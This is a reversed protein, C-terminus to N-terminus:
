TNISQDRKQDIYLSGDQQIEAYFVDSVSAVNAQQLQQVLWSEDRNIMELNKTHVTGDSIVETALPFPKPKSFLNMDEKTVMQKEANKIVSLKGNTEFIAYDVDSLQFVNKERLLARLTDIDLRAKKLIDEMLKGEKIVVMPDGIILQRTKKIKIDLFEVILTLLTWGILAILGLTISLNKNVAINAALSGIAVGSVWNFFTMQSIEKRGTIRTLIFLTIFTLTLRICLESLNM